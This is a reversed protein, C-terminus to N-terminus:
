KLGFRTLIFDMEENPGPPNGACHFVCEVGVEDCRSKFAAGFLAHHLYVSKAGRLDMPLPVATLGGGYQLYFPPDDATLFYIASREAAKGPPPSKDKWGGENGFLRAALAKDGQYFFEYAYKAFLDTDNFTQTAHGVVFSLRTSECAVPDDSGPDALDDHCALWVGINGGASSGSIAIRKRDVDWDDAQSRIFQVVRGGDTFPKLGPTSSLM